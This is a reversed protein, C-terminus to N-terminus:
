TTTGKEAPAVERGAIAQKSIRIRVNDPGLRLIVVAGEVKTVEGYLGGNTVVRDGKKLEDLFQDHAKQKKRIPVFWIFYFIAFIMLMPTMQILTEGLSPAAQALLHGISM